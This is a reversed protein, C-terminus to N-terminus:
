AERHQVELVSLSCDHSDVAELCARCGAGENTALHEACQLGERLHHHPCTMVVYAIGPERCRGIMTLATCQQRQVWAPQERQFPLEPQYWTTTM